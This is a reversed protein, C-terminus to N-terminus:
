RDQSLAMNKYYAQEPPFNGWSRSTHGEIRVEEVVDRYKESMLVDIYKPFFKDLVAKFGPKVVSQNVDFQIDPNMFRINLNCSFDAKWEELDAKFASQLDRCLQAKLDSYNKGINKVEDEKKKLQLMFVIAVLMFIMMLGTMLDSLPIWHDEPT